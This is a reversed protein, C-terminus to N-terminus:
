KLEITKLNLKLGIWDMSNSSPICHIMETGKAYRRLAYQGFRITMQYEDQGDKGIWAKTVIQKTDNVSKKTLQNGPSPNWSIGDCWFGDLDQRNSNEFIQGLRYELHTCFNENFPVTM